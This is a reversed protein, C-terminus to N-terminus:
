RWISKLIDENEINKDNVQQGLEPAIENQKRLTVNALDSQSSLVYPTIFLLLNTKQLRDRQFKFLNGILPIDGILPIKNEITIKDDRILGGIVVTKGSAMSIETDIQRKSTTPTDASLGTISDILQTFQSSIVLRIMSKHSIHPTIELSVGVDKYDINKIVTPTSPDSETIRTQIVFPINDGVIIKAKKHNSALIHPTSLINVGSETEMANIIAGIQTNGGVDKFAGVTLGESEGNVAAVRVGFNTDAFGRVGDSVAQDFTAWDIGIELLKDQSVEMILLEVLVNERVIDLQKIIDSLVKFDQASATIILSNTSEDATISGQLSDTNPASAIRLNALVPQLSQEAEKAQAHYLPVVHFNYSGAPTEIDLQRVLEEITNTDQEDAVVILASIRPDPQIQVGTQTQFAPVPRGPPSSTTKNKEMIETIQKALAQASAYKLHIVTRKAKASPVDLQGIINAIRHINSSTDTLLITNTPHYTDMKADAALHGQLISSIEDANAYKLHMIQTVVSDNQPIQAPDCGIRILLNRKNAGSRPVIKVHDRTPVAALGKVELISELFHYLEGLPLETNSLVTVNGTISEDVIFNIGTMDGITKIVLVIDTQNFNISIPTQALNPDSLAPLQTTIDEFTEDPSILSALNLENETEDPTSIQGPCAPELVTSQPEVIASTDETIESQDPTPTDTYPERVTIVAGDPNGTTDSSFSDYKVSHRKLIRATEEDITITQSDDPIQATLKPKNAVAPVKGPTQQCGSFVLGLLCVGSLIGKVIYTIKKAPKRTM